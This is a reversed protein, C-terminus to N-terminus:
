LLKVCCLGSYVAEFAERQGVKVTAAAETAMAAAVTAVEATAVAATAKAWVAVRAVAAKVAELKYLWVLLHLM